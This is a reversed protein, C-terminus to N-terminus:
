LCLVIPGAVSDRIFHTFLQSVLLVELLLCKVPAVTHWQVSQVGGAYRYANGASLRETEHVM